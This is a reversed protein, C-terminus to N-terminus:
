ANSLRETIAAILKGAISLMPPTLPLNDIDFWQADAIEDEQIRIDGGAYEAFYGVMLSHPFPWPQSGFYEINKVNVGVEEFIERHVAEELNEGSEVFGALTSYMKSDKHRVGNALLLQKDRYIAVIICPSVRPYCRHGCQHCQMAMEWDVQEMRYGCQGCFRHTRTFLIYQWVRAIMGFHGADAQMLVQRLSTPSWNSQIHEAGVDLVYIPHAAQIDDCVLQTVQEEYHHFFPMDKWDCLPVGDEQQPVLVKDQSFILWYGYSIHTPHIPKLM